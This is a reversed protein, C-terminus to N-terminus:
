RTDNVIVGWKKNVIGKRTNYNYLKMLSKANVKKILRGTKFGASELIYGARKRVYASPFLCLYEIFKKLNVIKNKINETMVYYATKLGGVPEPYYILDVLTREADSIRAKSGMIEIDRIGYMRDKSIKLLKYRVGGIVKERQMKTNLVYIIQSIQDTFKYYNYMSNYGIYYSGDPILLGPVIYENINRGTLGSEIPSYVYLGKKIPSLINKKVLRYILKSRVNIPFKPFYEDFKARSIIDTKEYSLRGIVERERETIFGTKTINKM